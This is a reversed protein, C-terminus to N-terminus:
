IFTRVFNFFEFNLDSIFSLLHLLERVCDLVGCQEKMKM